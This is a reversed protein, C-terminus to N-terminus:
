TDQFTTLASSPNTFHNFAFLHASVYESLHYGIAGGLTQVTLFPDSYLVGGLLTFEFKGRKSYTRNQVVGVETENGRAWYKEKISDVNVQEADTVPINPPQRTKTTETRALANEVHALYILFFITKLYKM